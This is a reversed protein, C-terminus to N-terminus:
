NENKSVIEVLNQNKKKFVTPFHPNRCTGHPLFLSFPTIMVRHLFVRLLFHSQRNPRYSNMDKIFSPIRIKNQWRFYICDTLAIFYVEAIIHVEQNRSYMFDEPLCVESILHKKKFLAKPMTTAKFNHKYFNNRHVFSPTTFLSCLLIGQKFPYKQNM